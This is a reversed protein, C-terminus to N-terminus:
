FLSQPAPKAQTSRACVTNPKADHSPVVVGWRSMNPMGSKPLAFKSKLQEVSSVNSRV